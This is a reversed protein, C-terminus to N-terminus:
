FVRYLSDRVQTFGSFKTDILGVAHNFFVLFLPCFWEAEKNIFTSLSYKEFLREKKFLFYYSQLCNKFEFM